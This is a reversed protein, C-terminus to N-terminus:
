IGKQAAFQRLAASANGMRPRGHGPCLIEIDMNAMKRVSRKAEDMDPTFAAIPLRLRDIAIVCDGCFMLRKAPWYFGLQGPTHGPLAVAYMGPLVEDLAEGDSLERHVPTGEVKPDPITRAMLRAVGSLDSPKARAMDRGSRTAAADWHSVYILAGTAKYLAALSGIHDQHAHTILIRKVQELSFGKATLNKQITNLSNALSTDILTLGDDSEIVYVRGMILGQVTHIGDIIKLM